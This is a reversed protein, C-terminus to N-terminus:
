TYQRESSSTNCRCLSLVVLRLDEIFTAYANSFSSAVFVMQYYYLLTSDFHIALVRM